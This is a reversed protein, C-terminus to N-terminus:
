VNVASAKQIASQYADPVQEEPCGLRDAYTSLHPWEARELALLLEYVDHLRNQGGLLATKVEQTVPLSNLVEAIPKDLLADTLSLLGMLFLSSKKDNLHAPGSFEECFYARTLATRILEPPKGEAMFVVSFISVWRRFEQEGLLTLAHRVSNIEGRLGLLPSNLYRLLRYLLSPERKLLDEILAYDLEPTAVANLLQLYILKNGPIDRTEMMFPKCFFYGQFYTFGLRRAQELELETEVKEALLSIGDKGYKAAVRERTEQDSLRFDVKLFQALEVLPALKPSDVFDDLALLYGAARLDRCIAVIEESAPVTELIEVVIREPPLLRPAGLRLALEDANVFARAHGTLSQLDFLTVANAIVSPSAHKTPQFYNEPGGRFLLEYAYVRLRRDFIPQRAMFRAPM